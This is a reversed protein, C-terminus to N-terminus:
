EAAEPPPCRDGRHLTKRASVAGPGPNLQVMRAYTPARRLSTSEAEPHRQVFGPLKAWCFFLDNSGQPGYRIARNCFDVARLSKGLKHECECLGYFAINRQYAYAPQQDAHRRSVWGSASSITLSSKTCLLRFNTLRLYNRYSDVAESYTRRQLPKARRARRAADCRTPGGCIRRIM